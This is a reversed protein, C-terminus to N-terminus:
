NSERLMEYLNTRNVHAYCWKSMSILTVKSKCRPLVRVIYAEDITVQYQKQLLEKMGMLQLMHRNRPCNAIKHFPSPFGKDNQHVGYEESEYGTKVELLLLNGKQSDYALIDIATAVRCADDSIPFETAVISWGKISLVSLINKACKDYTENPFCEEITLNKNEKLRKFYYDIQQHVRKGHEAGSVGCVNEKKQASPKYYKAKRARDQHSKYMPNEETEPYLIAKLRKTLGSYLIPSFGPRTVEFAINKGVGRQSIWSNRAHKVLKSIKAKCRLKREESGVKMRPPM